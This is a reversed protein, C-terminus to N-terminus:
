NGFALNNRTVLIVSREPKALVFDNNLINKNKLKTKNPNKLLFWAKLDTAEKPIGM